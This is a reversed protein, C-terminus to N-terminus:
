AEEPAGYYQQDVAATLSGLVRTVNLRETAKAQVAVSMNYDQTAAAESLFLFDRLGLVIVDRVGDPQRRQKGTKVLRKWAVAPIIIDATTPHAYWWLDAEGKVGAKPLRDAPSILNALHTEWETGQQTNKGM